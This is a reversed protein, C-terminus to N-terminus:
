EELISARRIRIKGRPKGSKSGAQEIAALTGMGEVVQGYISHKGDLHEAKDFLLFFQSGDTHPGSNAASLIGRKDHTRPRSPFESSYTFGPGGKGTGLPDGGQAMFNPIIRHFITDDYFGIRTLYIATSVHRPAYEPKLEIKVVGANTDLVWYIKLDRPFRVNPPRGLKLKWNPDSKDIPKYAIFRDMQEVPSPGQLPTASKRAEAVVTPAGPPDNSQCSLMLLALLLCGFCSRRNALANM